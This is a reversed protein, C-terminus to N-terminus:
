ANLGYSLVKSLFDPNSASYAKIESGITEFITTTEFDPSDLLDNAIMLCTKFDGAKVAEVALAGKMPKEDIGLLQSLQVIDANKSGSLEQVSSNEFITLIYSKLLDLKFSESRYQSATIVIEYRKAITVINLVDKYHLGLYSRSSDISNLVESFELLCDMWNMNKHLWDQSNKIYSYEILEILWFMVNTCIATKDRLELDVISESCEEHGFKILNVAREIFGAKSLYKIRILLADRMNLHHYADVLLMADKAADVQEVKSM